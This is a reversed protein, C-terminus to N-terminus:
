NWSGNLVFGILATVDSINISGDQNCDAVPMSANGALLQNIL